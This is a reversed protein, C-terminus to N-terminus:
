SVGFIYPVDNPVAQLKFSSSVLRFTGFASIEPPLLLRLNKIQEKIIIMADVTILKFSEQGYFSTQKNGFM